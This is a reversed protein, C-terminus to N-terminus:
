EVRWAHGIVEIKVKDCSAKNILPSVTKWRGLDVALSHNLEELVLTWSRRISVLRNGTCPFPENVPSLLPAHM